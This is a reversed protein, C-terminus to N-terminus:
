SRRRDKSGQRRDVSASRRENEIAWGIDIFQRRDMPSTRRDSAGTRRNESGKKTMDRRRGVPYKSLLIFLLAVRGTM